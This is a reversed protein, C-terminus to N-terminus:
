DDLGRKKLNELYDNLTKGSDDLVALRLIVGQLAQSKIVKWLADEISVVKEWEQPTEVEFNELGLREKAGHSWTLSKLGYTAQAYELVLSKKESEVLDWFTFGKGNKSFQGTLESGISWKTLYQGANKDHKLSV